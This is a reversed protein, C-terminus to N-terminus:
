STDASPAQDLAVSERTFVSVTREASSPYCHNIGTLIENKAAVVPKVPRSSAFQVDNIAISDLPNAMALVLTRGAFRIPLCVHRRALSAPVSGIAAAEIATTDIRIRPVNLAKSLTEAVAVDEDRNQRALAESTVADSKRLVM